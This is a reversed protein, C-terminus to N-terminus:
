IVAQVKKEKLIVPGGECLAGVHEAKAKPKGPSVGASAKACAPRPTPFRVWDVHDWVM